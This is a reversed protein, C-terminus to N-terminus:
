ATATKRFEQLQRHSFKSRPALGPRSGLLQQLRAAPVFVVPDQSYAPSSLYNKTCLISDDEHM